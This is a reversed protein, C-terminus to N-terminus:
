KNARKIIKFDTGKELRYHYVQSDKRYQYLTSVSMIEGAWCNITHNGEVVCKKPFPYKDSYPIFEVTDGINIGMQEFLLKETLVSQEKSLESIQKELELYKEKINM